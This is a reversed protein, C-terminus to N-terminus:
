LEFHEMRRVELQKQQQEVTSKYKEILFSMAAFKNKVVKLYDTFM